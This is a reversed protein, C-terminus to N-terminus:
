INLENIKKNVLYWTILTAILYSIVGKIYVDFAFDDFYYISSIFRGSYDIEGDLWKYFYYYSYLLLPLILVLLNTYRNWKIKHINLLFITLIPFPAPGNIILIALAHWEFDYLVGM